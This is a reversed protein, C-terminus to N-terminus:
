ARRKKAYGADSTQNAQVTQHYLFLKTAKGQRVEVCEVGPLQFGFTVVVKGEDLVELLQDKLARLGVPLVNVFICTADGFRTSDARADGRRVIVRDDVGLTIAAAQALRVCDSSMEIGLCYPVGFEVAAVCLIRGDGCGIDCVRSAPGARAMTLALRATALSTPNFPALYAEDTPSLSDPRRAAGGIAKREAKQRRAAARGFVDEITVKSM